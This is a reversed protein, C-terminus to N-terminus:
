YCLQGYTIGALQGYTTAALQGYTVSGFLNPANWQFAARHTIKLKGWRKLVNDFVLAHTFTPYAVAYSIVTYRDSISTIKVNLPAGLKQETFVLTTEDFDEFILKALFDTAEPYVSECTTLTFSQLGSSTWALVESSNSGVSLQDPSEIGGSNSIEKFIFPFRINGTYKASVVNKECFVLFGGSVPVCCVINGKVDNVGGGGAGTVLSPVFDTPTLANSWVITSNSWAIMYGFSATLGIVQTPDLGVLVTATMVKAVQDYVYCGNGQYYIYTQGQIYATTVITNDGIQGPLLPSVSAWHGVTADYVYNKGNSPSFLFHANNPSSQLLSFIKDFVTIVGDGQINTDYSVSQYGETTPLCNHLYCAMPIGKDKGIDASSNLLREYNQDYQPVIVSRGWLESTFPFIVSALNVRMTQHAM